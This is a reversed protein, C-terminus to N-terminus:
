QQQPQLKGGKDRKGGKAPVEVARVSERVAEEEEAKRRMRSMRM